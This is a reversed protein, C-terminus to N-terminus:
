AGSDASRLSRATAVSLPNDVNIVEGMRDALYRFDAGRVRLTAEPGFGLREAARCFAVKLLLVGGGETGKAATAEILDDATIADIIRDITDHDFPDPAPTGGEDTVVRHGM